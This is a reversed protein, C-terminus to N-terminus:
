ETKSSAGIILDLTELEELIKNVHYNYVVHENSNTKEEEFLEKEFIKELSKKNNEDLSPISDMNFVVALHNYITEISNITRELTAKFSNINNSKKIKLKIEKNLIKYEEKTTNLFAQLNELSIKEKNLFFDELDKKIQYHMHIISDKLLKEYYTDPPVVLYNILTGIILGILTDAARYIAYNLSSGEDYNLVIVLFVMSSLQIANTWGLLNCVYIIIIIGVGISLVNTPAIYSFVIAVMAGFITGLMRSKGATLSESVSSKMSIIAAIGVFLPSKLNLLQSIFIALSVALATKITRMGIKKPKM